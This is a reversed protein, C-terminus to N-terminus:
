IKEKSHLAEARLCKVACGFLQEFLDAWNIPFNM